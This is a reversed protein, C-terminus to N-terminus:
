ASLMNANLDQEEMSMLDVDILEDWLKSQESDPLAYYEDFSLGGLFPKNPDREGNKIKSSMRKKLRAISIQAQEETRAFPKDYSDSRYSKTAIEFLSQRDTKNIKVYEKKEVDNLSIFLSEIIVARSRPSMGLAASIIDQETAFM